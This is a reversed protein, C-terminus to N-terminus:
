LTELVLLLMVNIVIGDTVGDTPPWNSKSRYNMFKQDEM